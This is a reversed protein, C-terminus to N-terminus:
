DKVPVVILRKPVKGTAIRALVKRSQTDVV